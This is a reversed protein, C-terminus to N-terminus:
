GNSFDMLHQHQVNQILILNKPTLVAQTTNAQRQLTQEFNRRKDYIKGNGIFNIDQIIIGNTDEVQM